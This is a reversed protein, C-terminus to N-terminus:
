KALEEALALAEGDSIAHSHAKNKACYGTFKAELVPFVDAMINLCANESMCLTKPTNIDIAAKGDLLGIHQSKGNGVVVCRYLADSGRSSNDNDEHVVTERETQIQDQKDSTHKETGDDTVTNQPEQRTMDADQNNDNETDDSAVEDNPDLGVTSDDDLNLDDLGTVTQEDIFEIQSSLDSGGKLSVQDFSVQEGCNQFFTLALTGLVLAGIHKLKFAKM